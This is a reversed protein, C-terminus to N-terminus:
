TSITAGLAIRKWATGNSVALCPSGSDGNTCYLVSNTWSAPPYDAAIEAVSKSLLIFPTPSDSDLNNQVYEVLQTVSVKRPQGNGTDYVPVQMSGSVESAESLQNIATM